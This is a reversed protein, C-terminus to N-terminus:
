ANQRRKKAPRQTRKEAEAKIEANTKRSGGKLWDTLEQKSFYLRGGRKCVPLEGKQTKDYITPITFKLYAAAEPVTLFQDAEPHSTPGQEQLLSEIKNLKEFLRAVAEPLKDFTIDEM